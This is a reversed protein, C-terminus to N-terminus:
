RLWQVVMRRCLLWEGQLRVTRMSGVNERALLKTVIGMSRCQQAYSGARYSTGGFAAKSWYTQDRWSPAEPAVQEVPRSRRRVRVAAGIWRAAVPLRGAARQGDQAMGLDAKCTLQSNRRANPQDLSCVLKHPPTHGSISADRKPESGRSSGPAVLAKPLCDLVQNPSSQYGESLSMRLYVAALRFRSSGGGPPVSTL